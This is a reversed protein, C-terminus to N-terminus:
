CFRHTVPPPPLDGLVHYLALEWVEIEKFGYSKRATVKIKNNLGEVAGSSFDKKAKFWNLILERHARFSRAMKKMPEIRSRMVRACWADLFKGAWAASVYDWFRQFDEKMLYARVTRLNMRLLERMVGKQKKTLNYTRKLICWKTKKLVPEYGEMYLRHVERRRVEDLAKNMNAVIHFRDLINRANEAQERIVNLYPKWMDSCVFRIMAKADGFWTFFSRLTDETRDRGIWLLRRCGPNIQYVVTLYRHGKRYAIEDVGIATIGSLDRHALGYEVAWKVADYVRNWTTGFITAVESWSLRRAWTSLFWAYSKTLPSKGSAWPVTEVTVGCGPCDVRRMTYVFLVAIGWLPVYSFRREGLRDYCPGPVQCGSCIARSNKRPAIKVELWVRDGDKVLRVNQYVFSKFGEVHNLLTKLLM